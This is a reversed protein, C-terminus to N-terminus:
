YRGRYFEGSASGLIGGPSGPVCVIDSPISDAIEAVANEYVGVHPERTTNISTADCPRMGRPSRGRVGACAGGATFLWDAWWCYRGAKGTFECRWASM